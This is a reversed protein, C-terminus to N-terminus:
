EVEGSMVCFYYNPPLDKRVEVPINCFTKRDDEDIQFEHEYQATVACDVMLSACCEPTMVIGRIPARHQIMKGLAELVAERTEGTKWKAM